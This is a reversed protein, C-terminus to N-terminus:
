QLRVRERFFLMHAQNQRAQEVVQAMPNVRVQEVPLHHLLNKRLRGTSCLWLLLVHQTCLFLIM